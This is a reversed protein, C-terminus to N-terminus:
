NPLLCPIKNYFIFELLSILNQKEAGVFMATKFDGDSLFIVSM